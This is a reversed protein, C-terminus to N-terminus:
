LVHWKLNSLQTVTSWPYVLGPVFKYLALGKGSISTGDCNVHCEIEMRHSTDFVSNLSLSQLALHSPEM